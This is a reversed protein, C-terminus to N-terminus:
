ILNRHYSSKIKDIMKKKWEKILIAGHETKVFCAVYDEPFHLSNTTYKQSLM